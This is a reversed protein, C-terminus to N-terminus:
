KKIKKLEELMQLDSETIKLNADVVKGDPYTIKIDIVSDVTIGNSQVSKIFQPFKPHAKTFKAWMTTLKFMMGFDM